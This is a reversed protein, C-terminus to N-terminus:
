PCRLLLLCKYPTEATSKLMPRLGQVWFGSTCAWFGQTSLGSARFGFGWLKWHFGLLGTHKFWPLGFIRGRGEGGGGLGLGGGGGWDLGLWNLDYVIRALSEFDLARM